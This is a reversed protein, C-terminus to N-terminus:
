VSTRHKTKSVKRYQTLHKDCFDRVVELQQAVLEKQESSGYKALMTMARDILIQPVLHELNKNYM